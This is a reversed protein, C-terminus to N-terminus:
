RGPSLGSGAQPVPPGRFQVSVEATQPRARGGAQGEGAPSNSFPCQAGGLGGRCVPDPRLAPRAVKGSKARAEQKLCALTGEAGGGQGEWSRLPKPPGGRLSGEAAQRQRGRSDWDRTTRSHFPEPQGLVEQLATLPHPVSLLPSLALGSGSFGRGMKGSPINRLSM